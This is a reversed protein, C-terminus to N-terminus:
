CRGSRSHQTHSIPNGSTLKSTAKAVIHSAKAPSLRGTSPMVSPKGLSSVTPSPMANRSAMTMKAM